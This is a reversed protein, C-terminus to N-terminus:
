NLITKLTVLIQDASNGRIAAGNLIRCDTVANADAPSFTLTWLDKTIQDVRGNILNISFAAFEQKAIQMPGDHLSREYRTRCFDINNSARHCCLLSLNGLETFQARVFSELDPPLTSINTIQSM